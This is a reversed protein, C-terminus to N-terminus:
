KGYTVDYADPNNILHLSGGSTKNGPPQLDTHQQIHSLNIEINASPQPPAQAIDPPNYDPKGNIYSVASYIAALALLVTLLSAIVTKVPSKTTVPSSPTPKLTGDDEAPLPGPISEIASKSKAYCVTCVNYYADMSCGCKPCIAM